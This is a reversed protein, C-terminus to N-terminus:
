YLLTVKNPNTGIKFESLGYLAILGFDFRISLVGTLYSWRCIAVPTSIRFNYVLLKKVGRRTMISLMRKIMRLGDKFYIM